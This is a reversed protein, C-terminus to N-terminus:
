VVESENYENSYITESRAIKNFSFKIKYDDEFFNGILDKEISSNIDSLGDLFDDYLRIHCKLLTNVRVNISRALYFSSDILSHLALNLVEIEQEQNSFYNKNHEIITKKSEMFNILLKFKGLLTKCQNISTLIDETILEIDDEVVENVLHEIDVEDTNFINYALTTQINMSTEILKNTSELIDNYLDQYKEYVALKLESRIRIKEQQKFLKMTFLTGIITGILTAIVSSLLGIPAFSDLIPIGENAIKSLNNSLESSNLVQIIDNYM